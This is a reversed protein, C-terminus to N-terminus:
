DKAPKSKKKGPGEYPLGIWEMLHSAMAPGMKRDGVDLEKLQKWAGEMDGKAKDVFSILTPFITNVAYAKPISMRSIQSLQLIWKRAQGTTAQNAISPMSADIGGQANELEKELKRKKSRGQHKVAQGLEKMTTDSVQVEGSPGEEFSSWWYYCPRRALELQADKPLIMYNADCPDQALEEKIREIHDLTKEMLKLLFFATDMLSETTVISFGDRQLLNATAGMISLKHKSAEEDRQWQSIPIRELLYSKRAHPIPICRMHLHQMSDREGFSGIWDIETKREFVRYWKENILIRYDCATCSQLKAFPLLSFLTKIPAKERGDYIFMINHAKFKDAKAILQDILIPLLPLILQDHASLQKVDNVGYLTQQVFYADVTMKLHPILIHRGRWVCARHLYM